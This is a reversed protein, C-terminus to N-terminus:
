EILRLREEGRAKFEAFTVGVAIASWVDGSVGYFVDPKKKTGTGREFDHKAFRDILARRINVDKARSDHCLEMKEEMRYIRYCNAFDRRAREIFRGTWVCTDFVEKGVSMGYSAVHEIAVDVVFFDTDRMVRLIEANPVKGRGRVEIDNGDIKLLAYGSETSGPDIALVFM